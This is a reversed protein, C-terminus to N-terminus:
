TPTVAHDFAVAAARAQVNGAAASVHQAAVADAVLVVDDPENM